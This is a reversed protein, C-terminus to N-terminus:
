DATIIQRSVEGKEVFCSQSHIHTIHAPNSIAKSMKQTTQLHIELLLSSFIYELSEKWFNSLILSVEKKLSIATIKKKPMMVCLPTCTHIHTNWQIWSKQSGTSLLRGPAATSPIRWALISPTRKWKKRWPIKGVWPDLACRSCQCDSEKGSLWWPLRM